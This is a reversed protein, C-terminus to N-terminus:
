VVINRFKRAGCLFWFRWFICEGDVRHATAVSTTRSVPDLLADLHGRFIGTASRARSRSGSIMEVAALLWCGVVLLGASLLLSHM